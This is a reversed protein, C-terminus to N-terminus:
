IRASYLPLWDDNTEDWGFFRNGASDTKDGEPHNIRWAIHVSKVETGAVEKMELALITCAYWQKTSDYADIHDGVKLGERWEADGAAHTGLPALEPSHISLERDSKNTDNPFSVKVKGEPTKATVKCAM